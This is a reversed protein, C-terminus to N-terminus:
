ASQQNSIVSQQDRACVFLAFVDGFVDVGDEGRWGCFLMAHADRGEGFETFCRHLAHLKRLLLFELLPHPRLRTLGRRGVPHFTGLRTIPM